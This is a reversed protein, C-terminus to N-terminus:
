TDGEQDNKGEPQSKQIGNDLAAGGFDGFAVAVVKLHFFEPVSGLSGHAFM